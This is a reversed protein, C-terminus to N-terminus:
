IYLMKLAKNMKDVPIMLSESIMEIMKNYTFFRFGSKLVNWEMFLILALNMIKDKKAIKKIKMCKQTLMNKHMNSHLTGRRIIITIPRRSIKIVRKLHTTFTDSLRLYLKQYRVMRSFNLNYELSKFRGHFSEVIINVIKNLKSINVEQLELGSLSKLKDFPIALRHNFYVQLLSIFLLTEVPIRKRKMRAFIETYVKTAQRCISVHISGLDASRQLLNHVDEWM